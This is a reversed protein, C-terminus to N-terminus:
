RECIFYVFFDYDLFFHSGVWIIEESDDIQEKERKGVKGSDTTAWSSIHISFCSSFSFLFM